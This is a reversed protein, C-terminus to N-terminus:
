TFRVTDPGAKWQGLLRSSPGQTLFNPWRQEVSYLDSVEDDKYWQLTEASLTFWFEKSGGRIFSLNHM